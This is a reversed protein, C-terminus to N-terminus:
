PDRSKAPVVFRINNEVNLLPARFTLFPAALRVGSSRGEPFSSRLDPVIRM